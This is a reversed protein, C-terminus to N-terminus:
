QTTQGVISTKQAVQLVIGVQAVKHLHHFCRSEVLVEGGILDERNNGRLVAREVLLVIQVQNLISTLFFHNILEDFVM